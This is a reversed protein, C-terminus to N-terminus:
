VKKIIFSNVSILTELVDANEDIAKQSDYEQGKFRFKPVTIQYEQENLGIFSLPALIVAEQVEEQGEDEDTIIKVGIIRSQDNNDDSADTETTEKIAAKNDINETEVPKTVENVAANNEIVATEAKKAVEPTEKQSNNKKDSM